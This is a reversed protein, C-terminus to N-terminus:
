EKQTVLNIFGPIDIGVPCGERCSPNKCQLCRKAEEVAENEEYGLPVELFNRRRVEPTQEPMKQRPAKEKKQTKEVM